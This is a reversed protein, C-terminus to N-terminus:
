NSVFILNLITTPEISSLFILVKIGDLFQFEDKTGGDLLRMSTSLQVTGKMFNQCM